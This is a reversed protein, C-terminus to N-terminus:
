CLTKIFIDVIFSLSLHFFLTFHAQNPKQLHKVLGFYKCYALDEWSRVVKLLHWYQVEYFVQKECM